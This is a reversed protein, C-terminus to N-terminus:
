EVKLVPVSRWFIELMEINEDDMLSRLARDLHSEKDLGLWEMAAKNGAAKDPDKMGADVPTPEPSPLKEPPKMEEPGFKQLALRRASIAGRIFFQERLLLANTRGVREILLAQDQWDCIRPLGYVTNFFIRATPTFALAHVSDIREEALRSADEESLGDIVKLDASQPPAFGELGLMSAARNTVIRLMREGILAVAVGILLAGTRGQLPNGTNGPATGNAALPRDTRTVTQPAMLPSEKSAELLLAGFFLACISVILLTRSARAMMRATADNSASRFFIQGLHLTFSITAATGVSLAVYDNDSTWIAACTVLISSALFGLIAAHRGMRHISGEMIEREYEWNARAHEVLQAGHKRGAILSPNAEFAFDGRAMRREVLLSVGLTLLAPTASLCLMGLLPMSVGGLKAGSEFSGKMVHYATFLVASLLVLLAPKVLSPAITGVTKALALWQEEVKARLNFWHTIALILLGALLALGVKVPWGLNERFGQGTESTALFWTLIILAVTVLGNLSPEIWRLPNFKAKPGPQEPTM